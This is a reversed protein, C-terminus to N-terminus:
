YIFFFFTGGFHTRGSGGFKRRISSDAQFFPQFISAQVIEPIGVGDDIVTIELECLNNEIYKNVKAILQIIGNESFKISNSLLNIIM